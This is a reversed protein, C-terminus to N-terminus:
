LQRSMTPAAAHPVLPRGPKMAIKWFNVEGMKDLTEKVFDAEGVSVGGTTILVDAKGTTERFAAEIAKRDDRIVGLDLIKAGFRKLM